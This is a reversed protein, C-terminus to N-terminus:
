RGFYERIVNTRRTELEAIRASRKSTEPLAKLKNILRRYKNARSQVIKVRALEKFAASNDARFQAKDTAREYRDMIKNLRGRENSLERTWRDGRKAVGRGMHWYALKGILPVSGLTELGKGDGASVMDKTASDLFKVPFLIQKLAAAGVGETRAKWTVFKSIGGLRLMNDVVRDDFDTDRGLLWDKLEDAAANAMVFFMSLKVLNKLGQVVEAKEGTKIKNYAENRFVDFQKITFTKLMYFIRGNGAKLYQEPMESLAIPQFDLLRNYVLLKVNETIKDDLLDKITQDTEEGFIDKIEAKLKGADKKARSQYTELATNLLSEKGISDMKELGVWKFM